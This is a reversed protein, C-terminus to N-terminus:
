TRGNEGGNVHDVKISQYWLEKLMEWFRRWRGGKSEEAGGSGLVGDDGIEVM